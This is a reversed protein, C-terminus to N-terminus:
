QSLDGVGHEQHTTLVAAIHLRSPMGPHHVEVPETVPALAPGATTSAFAIL